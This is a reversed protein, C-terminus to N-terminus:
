PTAEPEIEDYEAILDYRIEDQDSRYDFLMRAAKEEIRELRELKLTLAALEARLQIIELLQTAHLDFRSSKMKLEVRLVEIEGAQKIITEDRQKLAAKLENETM